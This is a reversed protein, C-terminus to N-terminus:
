SRFSYHGDRLVEKIRRVAWDYDFDAVYDPWSEVPEDIKAPSVIITRRGLKISYWFVIYIALGFKELKQLTLTQIGKTKFKDGFKAEMWLTHGYGTVSFDPQGHTFHDEHRLVVLDKNERLKVSLHGKCTAENM